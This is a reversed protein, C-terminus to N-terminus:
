TQSRAGGTPPDDCVAVVLVDISVRFVASDPQKELQQMLACLVHPLGQKNSVAELTASPDKLYYRM